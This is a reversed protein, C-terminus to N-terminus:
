HGLFLLTDFNLVCYLAQVGLILLSSYSGKNARSRSRAVMSEVVVCLLSM